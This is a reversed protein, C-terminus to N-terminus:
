KAEDTDALVWNPDNSKVTRAFTWVDHTPVADSMSGAVVHGDADRTVAAIDADFRVTITAERGDLRADAIQAREITILRNDLVHGDARRAAIAEGFAAAVHPRALTALLAEDGKWFAELAMRYANRAGDLFRAVDFSPEAALIARIGPAAADDFVMDPARATIPKADDNLVAPAAIVPEPTAFRTEHGTRKGLVSYLRMAVFGAVMAILIIAFM